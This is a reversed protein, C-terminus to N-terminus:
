LRRRRDRIAGPLPPHSANHRERCCAFEGQYLRDFQEFCVAVIAPQEEFVFFAPVGVQGFWFLDEGLKDFPDFRQDISRGGIEKLARSALERVHDLTSYVVRQKLTSCTIEAVLRFCDDLIRLYERFNATLM